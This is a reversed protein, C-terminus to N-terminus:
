FTVRTVELPLEDVGGLLPAKKPSIRRTASTMRDKNFRRRGKEEIYQRVALFFPAPQGGHFATSRVANKFDGHQRV